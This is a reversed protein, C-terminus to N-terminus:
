VMSSLLEKIGKWLETFYRVAEPDKVSVTWLYRGIGAQALVYRGFALQGIATIGSALQGMGFYFALALQGAAAYGAVFQGFGFLVGVGFQAVTIIGVAFQGIAIVGKAVYLKGTSKNKGFAIHVLPWGAFEGRSRWEFGRVKKEAIDNNNSAASCVPCLGSGAEVYIGCKPCIM